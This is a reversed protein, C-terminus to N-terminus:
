LKIIYKIGLPFSSINPATQAYLSYTKPEPNSNEGGNLNPVRFDVTPGAQYGYKIGIKAFLAVYGPGSQTYPHGDCWAWGAPLTDAAWPIMGGTPINGVYLDALFADKQVRTLVSATSSYILLEDTSNVTNAIPKGRISNTTLETSFTSTQGAAGNFPLVNITRIDGQIALPTTEKLAGATGTLNGYFLSTITGTTLGFQTAYVGNFPFANSGINITGTTASVIGTSQHPSSGITVLGNLVTTSNVTLTKSSVIGATSIGGLVSVSNSATSSFTAADSVNLTGRVDLTAVPIFPADSFAPGVVIKQLDGDISMMVKQVGSKWTNFTFKGRDYYNIFMADGSPGKQISFTSTTKGIKIGANNNIILSGNTSQNIDNRIFNNASVIEVTPSTQRLNAASDAVGQMKTLAGDFVKSSVNIGPVISGFGDIPPNPLFTEKAIIEIPIDNLYMFIVDHSVGDRDIIKDPYSGTRNSNSFTPGVLVWGADTQIKLLQNDIDVWIDGNKSGLSIPDSSQQWVGNTPVWTGGPTRVQLKGNAPDQTNYWLQGAIPNTPGPQPGAFNELLHLFNTAISPGYGPYNRGVLDLSTSTDVTGTSIVIFGNAADSYNIIYNSM